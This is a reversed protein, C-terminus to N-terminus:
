PEINKYHEVVDKETWPKTDKISFGLQHVADRLKETTTAEIELYTPIGELTDFEFHLDRLAYSERHKVSTRTVVLGIEKFIKNVVAPDSLTTEYEQRIKVETNPIKQKYTLLSFSGADRLRLTGKQQQLRNDPFDYFSSQLKGAFVLKAGLALLSKIVADKDIELIKVEIEQM